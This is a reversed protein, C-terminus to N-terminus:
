AAVRGAVTFFTGFELYEHREARRQWEAILDQAEDQTLAGAERARQALTQPYSSLDSSCAVTPIVRIDQLECQQFIEPLWRGIAGNRVADSHWQTLKRVATPSSAHFVLTDLDPETVVIRGGPRTVRRMEEVVQLPQATHLLVREARCGDFSVAAFPLHHMDAHVFSIPYAFGKSRRQAAELLRESIDLGVVSGSAGVLRALARVDDGLGCGVDLLRQGECVELLQYSLGRRLDVHDPHRQQLYRVFAQPDLAADVAAFDWRAGHQPSADSQVIDNDPEMLM